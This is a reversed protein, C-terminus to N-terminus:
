PMLVCSLSKSEGGSHIGVVYTGASVRRGHDDLGQWELEHRGSEYNQDALLRVRRGRLDYIDVVVHEPRILDFAIRTRPNFPNPSIAAKAISSMGDRGDYGTPYMCPVEDSPEGLRGHIDRHRIVYIAYSLDTDMYWTDSTCMVPDDHVYGTETGRYVCTEMYLSDIPAAWTLIRSVGPDEYLQVVPKGWDPAPAEYITVLQDAAVGLNKTVCGSPWRVIVSDAITNAGLGVTIRHPTQSRSPASGACPTALHVNGGAHISVEAGRGLRNGGLGVLDVQLWHGIVAPDNVFLLNSTMEADYSSNMDGSRGVLLEVDGDADADFWTCAVVYPQIATGLQENATEFFSGDINHFLYSETPGAFAMFRPQFLDVLGDLDFDGWAANSTYRSNSWLGASEGIDIFTGDPQQTVLHNQGGHYDSAGCFYDWDGDRDVDTWAPAGWPPPYAPFEGVAPGSTAGGENIIVYNVPDYGWFAPGDHIMIDPDLDHDWDFAVVLDWIDITSTPTPWTLHPMFGNGDGLMVEVSPPSTDNRSLVVDLWSDGDFDCVDFSTAMVGSLGCDNSMDAFSLLGDNRFYRLPGGVKEIMLADLDGDGDMDFWTAAFAKPLGHSTVETFVGSGDNEYLRSPANVFWTGDNDFNGEFIDIDGDGDIDDATLTFTIGTNSLGRAVSEETFQSSAIDPLIALLAILSISELMKKTM